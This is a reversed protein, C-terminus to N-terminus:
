VPNVLRQLPALLDSALLGREGAAAAGDAAAAHATVGLEAATPLDFGQAVFGGIVGALVDGMGGSAMGPNGEGCVAPAENPGHIVTGAGKLVAVGGLAAQLRAAAAIRDAQVGATTEGLLRAAEGPHPTVVRREDASPRQALINLGDADLVLPGNFPELRALLDRGWDGQGLGPGAVVVDVRALLETLAEPGHVMLEPRASLFGSLHEPRTVVSVLGAGSRAAGCAALLPAGAMGRDGGVVLVHGFHGKHADRQRRPLHAGLTAADVRRATPPVDAYVARPVDLDHFRVTGACAAGAGTFLGTKLGIFTVTCDARVATGLISGTGGHVGSPIDVALVPLGSANVAAVADRYRGGVERDLGTGLMADVVVDAGNGLAGDFAAWHGGADRYRQAMAGADGGLEDPDKLYLVSVDLGDRRALEAIVYGDGGNNGGGCLICPRRAEPWRRRLEAYAMAGARTMLLAGPMGCDDIARRDLAAVQEPRYLERPLPTM